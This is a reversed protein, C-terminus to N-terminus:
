VGTIGKGGGGDAEVAPARLLLTLALGLFWLQYSYASIREKVGVWPTPLGEAIRPGDMGAWVGFGMLALVAALSFLRFRRGFSAAALGMASLIMLVAVMGSVIHTPGQQSGRIEMSAFPVAWLSLAALAAVLGGLVKLTRSGAASSLIGAAFALLATYIGFGFAITLPRTPAGFANLESITQHLYSYGEYRFSALVDCVFYLLPSLVGCGLLVTRLKM